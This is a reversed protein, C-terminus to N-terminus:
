KKYLLTQELHNGSLFLNRNISILSKEKKFKKESYLDMGTWRVKGSSHEEM